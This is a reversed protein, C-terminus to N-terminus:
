NKDVLTFKFVLGVPYEDEPMDIVNCEFNYYKAIEFVKWVGIGSGANTGAKKGKVGLQKSMGEAFPKGNNLFSVKLKEGEITVHIKIVFDMDTITFGHKSANMVINNFLEKFSRNSISIKPNDDGYENLSLEDFVEQITFGKTDGFEFVCETILDRIGILEPKDYLEDNTLNDIELSLSDISKSMAKFRQAVTINRIPNIIDNKNITGNQKEMFSNIVSISDIVNKLHQRICHQKERLEENFKLRTLQIEDKLSKNLSINKLESDIAESVIKIQEEFTKSQDKYNPLDVKISQFDSISIFPTVTGSQLSEVQLVVKSTHLLYIFYDIRVKSEDPIVAFVNNDIYIPEGQYHFYTPKCNKFRSAILICSQNIQRHILKTETLEIQDLNLQYDSISNKLDRIKVVKGIASSVSRNGRYISVIERILTGEVADAIYRNVSLNYDNVAILEANAFKQDKSTNESGFVGLIDNYNIKTTKGVVNVFSSGDIFKVSRKLVSKKFVLIATQINTFSFINKPLSIVAELYNQDILFEKLKKSYMDSTFLFGQPITIILRGEQKLSEIGKEIIFQEVSRFYGFKGTTQREGIKLGFPPVSLILDYKKANTSWKEVPDENLINTNASDGSALIRLASIAWNTRNYEQALVKVNNNNTILLDGISSFPNYADIKDHSDFNAIGYMLNSLGDPLDYSVPDKGLDDTAIKVLEEIHQRFQEDTVSQLVNFEVIIDFLTPESISNFSLEFCKYIDSIIEPYLGSKNSVATGIWEKTKGDIEKINQTYGFRVLVALFVILSPEISKGYPDMRLERALKHKLNIIDLQSKDM